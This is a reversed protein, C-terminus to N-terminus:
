KSLTAWSFFCFIWSWLNLVHLLSDLVVLDKLPSLRLASLTLFFFLALPFSYKRMQEIAKWFSTGMWSFGFGAIFMSTYFGMSYWDDNFAYNVPFYPKLSWEFLLVPLAALFLFYPSKNLLNEWASLIRSGKKRWRLFLPTTFLSMLLLYPLFWLHNFAFFGEPYRHQFSLLYDKWFSAEAIGKDLHEIYIQPRTILLIGILLPVGIRLLRESAYQWLNRKGLAYYSGMGSIMFLLPIRWLSLFFM